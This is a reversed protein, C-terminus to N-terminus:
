NTFTSMPNMHSKYSPARRVGYEQKVSTVSEFNAFWLVCKARQVTFLMKNLRDDSLLKNQKKHQLQAGDRRNTLAPAKNEEPLIKLLHHKGCSVAAIKRCVGSEPFLGIAARKKIFHVALVSVLVAEDEIHAFAPYSETSSGPSM